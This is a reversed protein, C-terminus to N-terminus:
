LVTVVGRRYAERESQANKELQVGLRWAFSFTCMAGVMAGFLLGGILIRVERDQHGFIFAAILLLVFSFLLQKM